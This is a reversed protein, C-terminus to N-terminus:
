ANSHCYGNDLAPMMSFFKNGREIVMEVSKVDYVESKDGGIQQENRSIADM